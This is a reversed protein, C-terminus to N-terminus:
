IKIRIKRPNTYEDTENKKILQREIFQDLDETTFRNRRGIKRYLLENKSCLKYLSSKPISLYEAAEDMTKLRSKM